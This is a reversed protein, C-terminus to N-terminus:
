VVSRVESSAISWISSRVLPSAWLIQCFIMSTCWSSAARRAASPQAGACARRLQGRGPVHGRVPRTTPTCAAIKAPRYANRPRCAAQTRAPAGDSFACGVPPDAHTRMPKASHQTREGKGDGGQGGADRDGLLRRFMDEDDEGDVGYCEDPEHVTPFVTGGIAFAPVDEGDQMDHCSVCARGPPAAAAAHSGRRGEDARRHARRLAPEGAPEVGSGCASAPLLACTSLLVLQMGKAALREFTPVVERPVAGVKACAGRSPPAFQLRSRSLMEM